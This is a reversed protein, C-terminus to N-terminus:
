RHLPQFIFFNYFINDNCFSKCDNLSNYREKASKSRHKKICSQCRKEGKEKKLQSCIVELESKLKIFALKQIELEKELEVKENEAKNTSKTVFNKDNTGNLKQQQNRECRQWKGNVMDYPVMHWKSKKLEIRLEQIKSPDSSMERESKLKDFALKQIKLENELDEIRTNAVTVEKELKNKELKLKHLDTRCKENKKELWRNESQLRRSPNMKLETKAAKYKTKLEINSLQLNQIEDELAQRLLNEGVPFSSITGAESEQPSLSETESEDETSSPRIEEWFLSILSASSELHHHLNSVCRTVRNM